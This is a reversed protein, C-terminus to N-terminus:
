DEFVIRPAPKGADGSALRAAVQEALAIFARGSVSDPATAAIPRGTDCAERLAMDIPVEGLFPVGLQEATAKAGGRGFIPIPAGTTPDPFYAMNEVVGLIPTATKAFMAAGRRVDILAAEQPTSVLVAGALATRQVLTLQIDGTGPPMDVILIDLPSEATGWIVDTLLQGLAQAAMPGRWIMAEAQNVLLGISMFRVGWAELPILRKGEGQEPSDDKGLMLPASPGYMDADLLGVKYGLAALACALNVAVTSKGVGGKGSAVAVVAGVHAPKLPQVPARPPEGQRRPEGAQPAGRSVRFTGPAPPPPAHDHNHGAHDHGAHSHAAAPPGGEATLVVQAREVHPLAKLAAEAAARVPEYASVEGPLVELM